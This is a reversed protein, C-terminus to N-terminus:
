GALTTALSIWKRKSPTKYRRGADTISHCIVLHCTPFIEAGEYSKVNNIKYPQCGSETLIIGTSLLNSSVYM